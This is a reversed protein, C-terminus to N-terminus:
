FEIEMEDELAWDPCTLLLRGTAGEYAPETPDLLRKIALDRLRRGRMILLDDLDAVTVRYPPEKGIFLLTFGDVQLGALEAVHLYHAASLDYGYDIVAKTLSHAGPKAATSKADVAVMPALLDFRAKLKLGTDPDEVFVSVEHQASALNLLERAEDHKLVSDRMAHAKDWDAPSVVTLGDETAKTVAKKWATTATPNDARDGNAKVGVKYPDLVLYRDALKEPELVVTHFLNGFDLADQNGGQKYNEPLLRKLRTSSLYETDAHYDDNSMDTYIGPPISAPAPQDSQTFPQGTSNTVEKSGLATSAFDAETVNVGADLTQTHCHHPCDPKRCYSCNGAECFGSDLAKKTKARARDLRATHASM